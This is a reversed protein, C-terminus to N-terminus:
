RAASADGLAPRSDSGRVDVELYTLGRLGYVISPLKKRVDRHGVRRGRRLGAGRRPEEPVGRPEGLRDGGRGRDPVERQGPLQGHTKLHAELANVHTISSGRTTRPAAPTSGGTASRRSSRRRTGCSSRTSRSSTTTATSSSRRAGRRASGSATSSRTSAHHPDDVRTCGARELRGHVWEAARKVDAARAPDTSVSPIALVDKLESLHRERNDSLYSDLAAM